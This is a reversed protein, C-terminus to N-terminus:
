PRCPHKLMDTKGGHLKEPNSELLSVVAEPNKTFLVPKPGCCPEDESMTTQLQFTELNICGATDAMLSTNKKLQSAPRPLCQLVLKLGRNGEAQVCWRLSAGNDPDLHKAADLMKRAIANKEERSDGEYANISGQALLDDIDEWKSSFTNPRLDIDEPRIEYRLRFKRLHHVELIDRAWFDADVTAGDLAIRFGEVAQGSANVQLLLNADTHDDQRPTATYVRYETHSRVEWSMSSRYFLFFHSSM